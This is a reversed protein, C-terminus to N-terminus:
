KALTSSFGQKKLRWVPVTQINIAIPSLIRTNAPVAESGQTCAFEYADWGKVAAM